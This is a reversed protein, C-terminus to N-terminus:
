SPERTLREYDSPYDCDVLISSGGADIRIARDGHDKVVQRLGVAGDLALLEERLQLDILIPHGGRGGFDPIVILPGEREYASIVTDITASQIQPQDVLAILVAKAEKSVAATGCRISSAMGERYDPNYVARVPRPGLAKRVDADRHGTVVIVEGARSALLQDVCTEVFTSGRYPLLQKFSEMRVSEGAALLVATIL